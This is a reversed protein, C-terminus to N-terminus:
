LVLDVDTILRTPASAGTRWPKDYPVLSDTHLARGRLHPQGYEVRIIKSEADSSGLRAPSALTVESTARTSAAARLAPQASVSQAACAVVVVLAPVTASMRM